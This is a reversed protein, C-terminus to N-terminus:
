RCSVTIMKLLDSPSLGQRDMRMCCAPSAALRMAPLDAAGHGHFEQLCLKANPLWTAHRM